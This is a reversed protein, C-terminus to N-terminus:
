PKVSPTLGKCTVSAEKQYPAIEQASFADKAGSVPCNASPSLTDTVYPYRSGAGAYESAPNASPVYVWSFKPLTRTLKAERAETSTAWSEFAGKSVVKGTTFMAGHWIGCLEDCRVSFTGTKTTTTYAINDYGPNADAKVGIQYAWFDHIVDLSTVHFAIATNDPIVLTQTEFGGFTPYRFTWYWQQGIVQIPLVTKSSPTWLPNPGEGGGAGEPQVLEYTGFVFAWLVIVTTITVWAWQIGRHGRLPAGDSLAEGKHQRWNVIAYVFYTWVAIMVPIATVALVKSDFTAGSATNSLSRTGPPFYTGIVFWFILDAALSLVAWIAILRRWHQDHGAGVRERTGGGGLEHESM